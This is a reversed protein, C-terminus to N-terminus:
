YIVQFDEISEQQRQDALKRDYFGHNECIPCSYSGDECNLQVTKKANDWCATCFRVTSSQGALTFYTQPHRQMKGSIDLERHLNANEERLTENEKRYKETQESYKITNQLQEVSSTKKILQFIAKIIAICESVKKFM